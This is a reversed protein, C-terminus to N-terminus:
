QSASTACFGATEIVHFWSIADPSTLMAFDLYMQEGVNVRSESAVGAM